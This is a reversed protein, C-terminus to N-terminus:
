LVSWGEGDCYFFLSMGLNKPNREKIGVSGLGEINDGVFPYITVTNKKESDTRKFRFNRKASKSSEPLYIAIDGAAADVFIVEPSLRELHIEPQNIKLFESQRSDGHGGGMQLIQGQPIKLWEGWEGPAIEFRIRTQKKDIEHRPMKGPEGPLGDKGPEGQPGQIGNLGDKGDRGPEGQPGIIAQGQEGRDGKEGKPGAISQGPLGQPGQPGQAGTEGKEGQPGREGDKGDRGPVGQIGQIGQEGRDGRPGRIHGISLWEVGDFFQLFDGKIRLRHVLGEWDSSTSKLPILRSLKAM